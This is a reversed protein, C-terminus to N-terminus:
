CVVDPESFYFPLGPPGSKRVSMSVSMPFHASTIRRVPSTLRASFAAPSLALTQVEKSSFIRAAFIRSIHTKLTYEPIRPSTHSFLHQLPHPYFNPFFNLNGDEVGPAGLM